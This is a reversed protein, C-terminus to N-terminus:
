FSTNRDQWVALYDLDITRASTTLPEWYQWLQLLIDGKIQSALTGGHAARDTITANADMLYANSASVASSVGSLQVRTALYIANTPTRTGLDTKTTNMNSTSGDTIFAMTVLTQGTDMGVLAVDAAGNTITPTDIDNIASAAVGSLADTFGIEFQIDDINDIKWRVEMGCNRDGTWLLNTYLVQEDGAVNETVLQCVGNVLQTAAPIATTGNTGGARWISEQWDSTQGPEMNSGGIFDDFVFIVDRFAMPYLYQALASQSPGFRQIHRFSSPDNLNGYNAGDPM